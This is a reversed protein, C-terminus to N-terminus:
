AISTELSDRSFVRDGARWQLADSLSYPEVYWFRYSAYWYADVLWKGGNEDEVPFLNAFGNTLLLGNEGNSQQELLFGLRGLHISAKEWGGLADVIEQNNARTELQYIGIKAASIDKEIHGHGALFNAKLNEGNWGITAKKSDKALSENAAFRPMVPADFNKAFKLLPQHAPLTAVEQAVDKSPVQRRLVQQIKKHLEKKHVLWYRADEDPLDLPIGQVLAGGLDKMNGPQIALATESM